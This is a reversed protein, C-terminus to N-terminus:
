NTTKNDETIRKGQVKALEKEIMYYLQKIEEIYKVKSEFLEPMGYRDTLLRNLGNLLTALQAETFNM